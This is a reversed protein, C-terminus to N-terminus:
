DATAAEIVEIDIANLADMSVNIAQEWLDIQQTLRDGSLVVNTVQQACKQELAETNLRRSKLEEVARDRSPLDYVPLILQIGYRGLVGRLREIALPTQEPWANQYSAYGFGLSRVGAKAAIVAGAVVYAHHCPLCTQEYFSTDARLEDPQRVVVWPV